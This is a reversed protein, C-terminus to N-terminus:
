KQYTQSAIFRKLLIMTRIWTKMAMKLIISIYIYLDKLKTVEQKINQILHIVLIVLVMAPHMLEYQM